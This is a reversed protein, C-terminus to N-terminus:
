IVSVQIRDDRIKEPRDAPPAAIAGWQRARHAAMSRPVGFGQELWHSGEGISAVEVSSFPRCRV